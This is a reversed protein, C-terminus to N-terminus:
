IIFLYIEIERNLSVNEKANDVIRPDSVAYISCTDIELTRRPLPLIIIIIILTSLFLSLGLSPPLSDSM